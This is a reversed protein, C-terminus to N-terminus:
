SEEVGYLLYVTQDGGSNSFTSKRTLTEFADMFDDVAVSGMAPEAGGFFLFFRLSDSKLFKPLFFVHSNFCTSFANEFQM